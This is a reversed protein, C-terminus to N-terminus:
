LYLQSSMSCISNTSLMSFIITFYSFGQCYYSLHSCHYHSTPRLLNLNSSYKKKNNDIRDEQYYDIIRHEYPGRKYDLFFAARFRTRARYRTTPLPFFLNRMFTEHYTYSLSPSHAPPPCARM